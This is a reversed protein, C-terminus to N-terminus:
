RRCCSFGDPCTGIWYYPSCCTGPICRRNQALCTYFRQGAAGQIMIFLVALLQY